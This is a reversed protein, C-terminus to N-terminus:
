ECGPLAGKGVDGAAVLLGGRVLSWARQGRSLGGHRVGEDVVTRLVVEVEVVGSLAALGV